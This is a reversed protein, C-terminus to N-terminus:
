LNYLYTRFVFTDGAAAAAATTTTTTTTTAPQASFVVDVKLVSLGAQAMFRKAAQWDPENALTVLDHDKDHYKLLVVSTSSASGEDPFYAAVIAAKVDGLTSTTSLLSDLRRVDGQWNTKLVLASSTMQKEHKRENTPRRQLISGPRRSARSLASSAVRRAASACRVVSRSVTGSYGTWRAAVTRPPSGGTDTGTWTRMTAVIASLCYTLSCQCSPPSPLSSPSSSSSWSSRCSWCSWCGPWTTTISGASLGVTRSVSNCTARRSGWSRMRASAAFVTAFIANQSQGSSHGARSSVSSSWRDGGAEEEGRAAEVDGSPANSHRMSRAASMSAWCMWSTTARRSGDRSAMAADEEEEEEEEDNLAWVRARDM